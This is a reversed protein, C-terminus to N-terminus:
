ELGLAERGVFKGCDDFGLTMLIGEALSHGIDADDGDEGTYEM